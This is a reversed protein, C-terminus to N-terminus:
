GGYEKIFQKPERELLEFPTLDMRRLMTLVPSVDEVYKSFYARYDRDDRVKKLLFRSSFIAPFGNEYNVVKTAYIRGTNRVTSGEKQRFSGRRDGSIVLSYVDPKLGFRSAVANITGGSAIVDDIFKPSAASGDVEYGALSGNKYNRRVNVLLFDPRFGLRSLLTYTLVGGNGVLTVPEKDNDTLIFLDEALTGADLVKVKNRRKLIELYDEPIRLGFPKSDDLVFM